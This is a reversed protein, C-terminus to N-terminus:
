IDLKLFDLHITKAGGRGISTMRITINKSQFGNEPPNEQVRWAITAYGNEGPEDIQGDGDNDIGDADQSPTFFNGGTDNLVPDTFPLAMFEEGQQAAWTYNDTVKKATANTNVSSIQMSLVALIGISFIAMAILIEILTFGDSKLTQKM